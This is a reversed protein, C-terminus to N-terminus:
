AAEKEKAQRARKALKIVVAVTLGTQRAIEHLSLTGGDILELVQDHKTAYLKTLNARAEEFQRRWHTIQDYFDKTM